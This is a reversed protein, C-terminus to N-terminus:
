KASDLEMVGVVESRIEHLEKVSHANAVKKRYVNKESEPMTSVGLMKNIDSIIAQAEPPIKREGTPRSVEPGSNGDDDVPALGLIAMLSYRRLYTVVSGVQQITTKEGLPFSAVDTLWQGSEHLLTTTVAVSEMNSAVTQVVSLGNAALPARSVRVVEGLDAYSSKFYPNESTRKPDVMAGQAKAVAAALATIDTSHNM